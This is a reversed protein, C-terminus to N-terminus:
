RSRYTSTRDHARCRLGIGTVDGVRFPLEEEGVEGQHAFVGRLTLVRQPVEEVGDAVDDLGAALPTVQGMIKGGPGGHILLGSAPELRADELRDGVVEPRDDAKEVVSVGLGRGRDEVAAREPRRGLTATPRPEVPGLLLFARLDM